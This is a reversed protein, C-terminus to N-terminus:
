QLSDIENRNKTDTLRVQSLPAFVSDSTTPVLVIRNYWETTGAVVTVSLVMMM